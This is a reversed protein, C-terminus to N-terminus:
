ECAPDAIVDEPTRAVLDVGPQVTAELDDLVFVVCAEAEDFPCRACPLGVSALTECANPINVDRADVVGVFRGSEVGGYWSEGDPTLVGAFQADRFPILTPGYGLITLDILQSFSTPGVAFLPDDYAGPEVATPDFTPACLDQEAGASLAGIMSVTDDDTTLFQTLLQLDAISVFVEAGPPSVVSSTLSWHLTLGSPLVSVPTSGSDSTTFSWTHTGTAWTVTATFTTSPAFLEDSLFLIRQLSVALTRGPVEAGDEDVVTIEGAAGEHEFDVVVARSPAVGARGDEPEFIVADPIPAGDDDDGSVGSDDDDGDEWDDDDTWVPAESADDDDAPPCGALLAATLM